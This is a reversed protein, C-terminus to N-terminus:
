RLVELTYVHTVAAGNSPTIVAKIMKLSSDYSFSMSNIESYEATYAYKLYEVSGTYTNSLVLKKQAFNLSYTTSNITNAFIISAENCTPEGFQCVDNKVSVFSVLEQIKESASDLQQNIATTTSAKNQVNVMAGITVATMASLVGIVAITVVLEVTTFGRHSPKMAYNYGRVCWSVLSNLTFKLYQM